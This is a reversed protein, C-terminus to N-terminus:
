NSKSVTFKSPLFIDGIECELAAAIAQAVNAPVPRLGNEYMSYTSVAVGSHSAVDNQTLGRAKRIRELSTM